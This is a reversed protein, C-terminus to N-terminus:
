LEIILCKSSTFKIKCIDYIDKSSIFSFTFFIILVM